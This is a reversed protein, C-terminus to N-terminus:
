KDKVLTMKRVVTQDARTLTGEIRTGTIKLLWVQQPLAWQLTQQARHYQWQGSGMTIAKGNVIKDAQIFVLDPHGPVDKIYYVVSENKCAAADTACLSEGRWIGAVDSTEASVFRIAPVTVLILLRVAPRINM